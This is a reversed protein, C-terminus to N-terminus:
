DKILRINLFMHPGFYDLNASNATLQIGVCDGDNDYEGRLFATGREENWRVLKNRRRDYSVFGYPTINLGSQNKLSTVTELLEKIESENPLHWGKIVKTIHRAALDNYFYQRCASDFFIGNGGSVNDFVAEGYDIALNEAMWVQDGIKVTKPNFTENLREHIRIKLAM